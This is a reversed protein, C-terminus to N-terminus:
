FFSQISFPPSANWNKSVTLLTSIVLLFESSISPVLMVMSWNNFTWVLTPQWSLSNIPKYLWSPNLLIDGHIASIFHSIDLRRTRKKPAIIAYALLALICLSATVQNWSYLSSCIRIAEYCVTCDTSPKSDCNYTSLLPTLSTSSRSNTTSM